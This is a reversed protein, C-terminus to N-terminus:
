RLGISAALTTLKGHFLPVSPPACRKKDANEVRSPHRVSTSPGRESQVHGNM